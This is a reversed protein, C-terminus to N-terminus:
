PNSASSSSRPPMPSAPIRSRRARSSPRSVMSDVRPVPVLRTASTGSEHNPDDDDVVVRDNARTKPQQELGLLVHLHDAIGPVRAVGDELHACALGVDDQEVDDHGVLAADFGQGLQEM